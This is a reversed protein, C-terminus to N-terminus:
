RGTRKDPAVGRGIHFCPGWSNLLKKSKLDLKRYSESVLLESRVKTGPWHHCGM